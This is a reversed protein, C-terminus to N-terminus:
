DRKHSQYKKTINNNKNINKNINSNNNISQTANKTDKHDNNSHRHDDNGNNRYKMHKSSDQRHLYNKVNNYNSDNQNNNKNQMNTNKSKRRRRRKQKKALTNHGDPQTNTNQTHLKDSPKDSPKGSPKGSPKDSPKGSPKGSPKDSPKDSSRDSPKDSSRDSPKDSPKDPLKDRMQKMKSDKPRRRRNRRNKKRPDSSLGHATPSTNITDNKKFKDDSLTTSKQKDLNHQVKHLSAHDISNPQINDKKNSQVDSENNQTHNKNTEGGGGDDSKIDSASDSKKVSSSKGALESPTQKESVSKESVRNDIYNSNKTVGSKHRQRLLEIESTHIRKKLLHIEKYVEDLAEKSPLNSAQLITNTINDWHKVLELEKSVLNGYNEAFKISDFLQTFDNDFIDIWIRKLSDAHEADYRIDSTKANVKNQAERWTDALQSYYNTLYKNFEVLDDNMEILETAVKKSNAVFARMPGISALAQPKSSMLHFIDTWFLVLNKYYEANKADDSESSEM